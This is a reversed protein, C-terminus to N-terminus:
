AFGFFCRCDGFTGCVHRRRLFRIGCLFSFGWVGRSWGCFLTRLARLVRREHRILKAMEKPNTSPPFRVPASDAHHDVPTRRTKGKAFCVDLDIEIAPAATVFLIEFVDTTLTDANYGYKSQLTKLANAIISKIASEM